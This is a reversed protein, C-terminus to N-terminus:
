NKLSKDKKVSQADQQRGFKLKGDRIGYKATFLIICLLTIGMNIMYFWSFGKLSQKSSEKKITTSFVNGFLQGAFFAALGTFTGTYIMQSTAKLHPPCLDNAILVASSHTLGFNIGKCTELLCAFLFAHSNDPSLSFYGFFRIFQAFQAILLPWYLGFFSIIASSYFMIIIELVVGCLSTTSMPNQNFIKLIYRLPAALGSIDYSQLKLVDQLFIGLYLTMAARSVGNLFIIFIFFMYESNKILEKWSNGIEHTSHSSEYSKVTYLTILIAPITLFPTILSLYKFDYQTGPRCFYEVIYNVVLYGLTGFLRQRGYSRRDLNEDNNLYEIAFRDLLAPLGTSFLCYMLMISWFFMKNYISNGSPILYFMEFCFCSSVLLTVILLKPREFKDNITAVLSNTFFCLLLIVGFLQGFSNKSIGQNTAFNGRVNYFAYYQMNIFFYLMKLPIAYAKLFQM